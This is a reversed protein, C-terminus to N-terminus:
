TLETVVATGNASAWIGKIIGTYGFPVEYYSGVTAKAALPVTYVASTPTTSSLILYLIATSDNVITAGVRATNAALVTVATASSNVQSTTGTVSHGRSLIGKLLAVVSASATPDTVASDGKAGETVDAGDAITLVGATLSITGSVVAVDMAGDIGSKLGM